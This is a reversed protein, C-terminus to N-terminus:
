PQPFNVVITRHIQPTMPIVLLLPSRNGLRGQLLVPATKKNTTRGQGKASLQIFEQIQSANTAVFILV